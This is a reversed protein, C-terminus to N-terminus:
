SLPWSMGLFGVPKEELAKRLAKRKVWHSKQIGHNRSSHYISVESMSNSLAPLTNRLRLAALMIDIQPYM